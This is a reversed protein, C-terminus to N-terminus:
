FPEDLAVSHVDRLYPDLEGIEFRCLGIVHWFENSLTGDLKYRGDPTFAAWAGPLGLLTLRLKPGTAATMDWLRTTGDDAGSALMRGDPSYALSTVRRTHAALTDLRTGTQVDWLYIVTDDGGAALVTGDPSFTGAWLKGHEAAMVRQQQGTASWLMVKGDHSVSALRTGDRDFRVAYVRDTHGILAAIHDGNHADFLRVKGDDCGTAVLRGDSSFAISRVRGRHEHLTFAERGTRRWWLRVTDDDNATALRDGTPDFASAWVYDTEVDLEVDAQWDSMDWMHVGGDNSATALLDDAPCFVGSVLQDGHGTLVQTLRGVHPDWVRVAGDNGSVALLRGTPDFDIGFVRRGHGHVEYRQRGSPMDWLRLSGDKGTTAIQRSDPRFLPAWVVGRHARIDHRLEGTRAHWVRLVGDNDGSALMTGDPSFTVRYVGVSRATTLQRQTASKGDLSWLRVSGRTDGSALLDGDPHFALTYIHAVHGTLLQLCAGTHADWLGLTGDRGAAAIAAGDPSFAFTYVPAADPLEFRTVTRGAALDWVRVVGHNDATALLDADPGPHFALAWVRDAHGGLTRYVAGTAIRRVVVEGVGNGYALLTGARNLLLPWVPVTENFTQGQEGSVPDWCRVTKDASASVLVSDPPGFKVAYVRDLHGKLTRIPQGLEPDCLLVGGDGNGIALLSGDPSYTLPSPLRGIEYGFQVGVGAPQLGVLVPQGPALAANKLEQTTWLTSDASVNVLAARSWTSGTVNAGRLDAQPLRAATFDADALDANRLTARDLRARRLTTRRMTAGTLNTGVLSADTLDADSLDAGSLDRYSFDEGRLSAGRLDATAPTSLRDAIKVANAVAIEDSGPDAVWQQVAPLDAMDCLFDVTLQSLQTRSLLPPRKRGENLQRSIENAVLWEMVSGHIFGFRQDVRVLVSGSGIAHILHSAQASQVSSEALDTLTKAVDAVDDLRLTVENTEWMRLALTTVAHWMDETSLGTPSGPVGHVREHEYDLWTTLIERYLGAASMTRKARAVAALKDGDLDAVFSLMRPNRALGGLDEIRNILSMRQDAAAKDQGYKNLLYTGMQSPNFDELLLIRRHPLLGVREGLATRVQTDNQFYQTRSTVVIKASDEAAALLTDLHDAARDYSVRTALEDFGDFLLVIRGQRLLYRFARLDLRPQGYNTLHAAVLGGLSHAKDLARLEILIPMLDPRRIQLMSALKRMAFTKGRGFDGMLLVFRGEDSALQRLIEEVVDDRISSDSGVMERFRQPVYLEPPYVRDNRLRDAQGALYERLDLLGQFEAFSRVSVGDRLAEQVLATGPHPGQYVLEADQEAGSGRAVRAFAAVDERTLLGIHAAVRFQPVTYGDTYTVLLSAPTGPLRRIRADQHRVRCVEAIRHLLQGVPDGDNDAFDDAPVPEPGGLVQPGDDGPFTQGAAHWQRFLATRQSQTSGAEPLRWRTLGGRTIHLLQAGGTAPIVAAGSPLTDSNGVSGNHLLMNLHTGLSSDMASADALTAAPAAGLVGIRLCGAQEAAALEHAFWDIQLQGLSGPERMTLHTQTVTPNLGAVVCHLDPVEFLTWPQGADFVPGDASAYLESFMRSFHRWKRFYPPQPEVGDAECDAFYAACAPATIDGSGPVLVIRSSELGLISGLGTVFSTLQEFQRLTGSETLSGSLIVLQPPPATTIGDLATRLRELWAVPDETAASGFKPQEVHLISLGDITTTSRAPPYAAPAGDRASEQPPDGPRDGNRAGPGPFRPTPEVRRNRGSLAGEIGTLLVARAQGQDAMGVLDVFTIAGLLGDPIVDEVRIPLLKTPRSEAARMAAMWELRGYHSELYRQSLVAIVAAADRIGRDIFDLFDTGAVFDWEQIMIRHGAAELEHAIWIAWDRDTLSYSIFFDVPGTHRARASHTDPRLESEPVDFAAALSRIDDADVPQAGSEIRRLAQADLRPAGVRACAAALREISWTRQERLARVRDAFDTM